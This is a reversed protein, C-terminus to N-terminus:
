VMQELRGAGLVLRARQRIGLAWLSIADLGMSLFFGLYIWLGSLLECLPLGFYSSKVVFSV